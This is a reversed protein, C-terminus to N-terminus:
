GDHQLARRQLIQLVVRDRQKAQHQQGHRDRHCAEAAREISAPYAGPPLVISPNQRSLLLRGATIDASKSCASALSTSRVSSIRILASIAVANSKRATSHTTSRM